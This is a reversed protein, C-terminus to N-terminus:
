LMKELKEKKVEYLDDEESKKIESEEKVSSNATQEGVNLTKRLSPDNDDNMTIENLNRLMNGKEPDSYNYEYEEYRMKM